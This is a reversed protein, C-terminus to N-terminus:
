IFDEFNKSKKLHDILIQYNAKMKTPVKAQVLLAVYILLSLLFYVTVKM